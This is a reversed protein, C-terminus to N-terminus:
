YKLKFLSEVLLMIGLILPIRDIPTWGIYKSLLYLVAPIVFIINTFNELFSASSRQMMVMALSIGHFIFVAIAAILVKDFSTRFSWIGLAELIILLSIPLMIWAVPRHLSEM